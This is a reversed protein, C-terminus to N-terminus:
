PLETGEVTSLEQILESIGLVESPSKGEGFSSRWSAEREAVLKTRELTVTASTRPIIVIGTSDARVIDGPNVITGGCQIPVNLAGPGEKSGVAPHRGLAFTPLGLQRMGDVDRVAGDVVLGVAGRGQLLEGFIDGIVAADVRGGGDIVLVDGPSILEPAKLTFLIDGPKTWLTVASGCFETSETVPAIATNVISVPAGSDAIQTTPYTALEAILSSDARAELDKIAWQQPHSSSM